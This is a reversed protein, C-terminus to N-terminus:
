PPHAALRAALRCCGARCARPAAVSAARHQDVQLRADCTAMIKGCLEVTQRQNPDGMAQQQPRATPHAAPAPMAACARGEAAVAPTGPLARARVCARVASRVQAKRGIIEAYGRFLALVDAYNGM